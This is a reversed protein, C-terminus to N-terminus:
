SLRRLFYSGSRGEFYLVGQRPRVFIGPDVLWGNRWIQWNGPALGTVLYRRAAATEVYFGVASAASSPENHFMVVWSGIRAGAVDISAIPEIDATAYDAAITDISFQKRECILQRRLSAPVDGLPAGIALRLLVGDRLFVTSRRVPGTASPYAKTVDAALFAFEPNKEEPGYAHGLAIVASPETELLSRLSELSWWGTTSRASAFFAPLDSSPNM